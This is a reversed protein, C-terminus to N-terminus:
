AFLRYFDVQDSKLAESAMKAPDEASGDAISRLVNAYLEDELAHATEFDRKISELYKVAKTVDKIKM